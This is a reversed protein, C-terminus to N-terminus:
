NKKRMVYAYTRQLQATSLETLSNLGFYKNIYPVYARDDGLQNKCRTKISRIRSLRWDDDKSSASPMARLMVMQKKIFGVVATYKESEIERYSAASGKSNIMRWASQITLPKKKISNHLKVWEHCLNFIVGCQESNIPNLVPTVVKRRKTINNVHVTVPGCAGIINTGGVISHIEINPKSINRGAVDGGVNDVVLRLKRGTM